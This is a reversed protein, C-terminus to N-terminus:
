PIRQGRVVEVAIGTLHSMASVPDFSGAGSPSLANVNVGPYAQAVLMGPTRENGFGHSM